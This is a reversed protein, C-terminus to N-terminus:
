SNDIILHVACSEIDMSIPPAIKAIRLDIGKIRDGWKEQLHAVIRGAVLELLQSPILMEEKVIEAADAYSITDSLQDTAMADAFDTTISLDVRYLNGVIREQPLVGHFAQLKINNIEIINKM